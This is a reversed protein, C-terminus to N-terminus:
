NFNTLLNILDLLIPMYKMYFNRILIFMFFTKFVDKKVYLYMFSVFLNFCELFIDFYVERIGNFYYEKMIDRHNGKALCCRCEGYTINGKKTEM